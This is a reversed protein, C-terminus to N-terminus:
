RQKRIAEAIESVNSEDIVTYLLDLNKRTWRPDVAPWDILMLKEIVSEPFRYKILKAPCGGVIAYPPVDKVVTSGAAVIAGQGITVGSLILVREGIWVDDKLCIPGKSTAEARKGAAKVKFPFTSVYCYPHESGMIFRVDPAISCFNGITLREEPGGSYVASICGYTCKGVTVIRFFDESAPIVGLSTSNHPNLARWKSRMRRSSMFTQAFHLGSRIIGM